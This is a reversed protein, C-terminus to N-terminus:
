LLLNLVLGQCTDVGGAIEGACIQTSWNKPLEPYVRYCDSGKLITLKANQLIDPFTGNDYMDGWGVAYGSGVTDKPPYVKVNTPPLCAVQIAKNLTVYETLKLMAIDNMYVDGDYDYHRLVRQAYFAQTPEVDMHTVGHVGLYVTYMSELNPYYSNATVNFTFTFGSFNVDFTQIICHAATIVTNRDVLTGGCSYEVAYGRHLAGNLSLDTKYNIKIYAAAPWSHATAKQGGVVKVLNASAFTLGCEDCYTLGDGAYGYDCICQPGDARDICTSAREHCKTTSCLEGFFRIM